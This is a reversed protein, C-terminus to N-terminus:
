REKKTQRLSEATGRMLRSVEKRLRPSLAEDEEYLDAVDDYQRALGEDLSAVSCTSGSDKTTAESGRLYLDQVALEVAETQNVGHRAALLTIQKQTDGSLRFSRMTKSM